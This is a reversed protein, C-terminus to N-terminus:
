QGGLLDEVALWAELRAAARPHTGVPEGARIGRWALLVAARETDNESQNAADLAEVLGDVDAAAALFEPDAAGERAAPEERAADAAAGTDPVRASRPSRGLWALPLDPLPGAALMAEIQGTMMSTGNRSD